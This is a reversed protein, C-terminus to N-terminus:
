SLLERFRTTELRKRLKGKARYLLQGVSDERVGIQEAIARYRLGNLYFAELLVRDRESLGDLAERVVAQRSGSPLVEPEPAVAEFGEQELMQDLSRGGRARRGAHRGARRAAITALWTSLRSEGKFSRLARLEDKLLELFFDGLVEEIEGANVPCGHAALSRGIIHRALRSYQQVFDEWAGPAGALCRELLEREGDMSAFPLQM